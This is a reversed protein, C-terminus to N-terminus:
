MAVRESGEGTQRKVMYATQSKGKEEIRGIFGPTWSEMGGKEKEGVMEGNM